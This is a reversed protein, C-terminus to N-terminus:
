RFSDSKQYNKGAAALFGIPLWKLNPDDELLDSLLYTLVSVVCAAFMFWLVVFTGMTLVAKILAIFIYIPVAKLLTKCNSFLLDFHFYRHMLAMNYREHNLKFVPKDPKHQRSSFLNEKSFTNYDNKNNYKICIEYIM